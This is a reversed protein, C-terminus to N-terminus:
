RYFIIWPCYKKSSSTDFHLHQCIKANSSKDRLIIGWKSDRWYLVYVLAVWSYLFSHLVLYICGQRCFKEKKFDCGLVHRICLPISDMSIASYWFCNALLERESNSFLHKFRRKFFITKKEVTICITIVFCLRAYSSYNNNYPMLCYKDHRTPFLNSIERVFCAM